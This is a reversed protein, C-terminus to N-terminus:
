LNFWVGQANYALTMRRSSIGDISNKCAAGRQRWSCWGRRTVVGREFPDIADPVHFLLADWAQQLSPLWDRLRWVERRPTQGPLRVFTDSSM